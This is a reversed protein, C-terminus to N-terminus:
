CDGEMMKRDGIGCAVLSEVGCFLTGWFFPFYVTKLGGDLSYRIYRESCTIVSERFRFYVYISYVRERDKRTKSIILENLEPKRTALICYM